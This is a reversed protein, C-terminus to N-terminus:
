YSVRCALAANERNIARKIAEIISRGIIKATTKGMISEM